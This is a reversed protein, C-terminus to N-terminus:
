RNSSHDGSFIKLEHNIQIYAKNISFRFRDGTALQQVNM